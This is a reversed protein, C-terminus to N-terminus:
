RLIDAAIAIARFIAWFRAYIIAAPRRFLRHPPALWVTLYFVLVITQWFLVIFLIYPRGSSAPLAYAFFKCLFVIVAWPLVRFSVRKAANWGLGKIMLLFAVGEVIVHEAAFTLSYLAYVWYPEDEHIPLLINIIGVISVVASNVWLVRVFVPFVFSPANRTSIETLLNINLNHMLTISSLAVQHM